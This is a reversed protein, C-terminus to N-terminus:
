MAWLLWPVGSCEWLGTFSMLATVAYLLIGGQGVIVISLLVLIIGSILRTTFM